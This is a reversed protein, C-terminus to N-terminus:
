LGKCVCRRFFIYNGEKTPLGWANSNVHYPIYAFKDKQVNFRDSYLPIESLSPVIILSAKIIGYKRITDIITHFLGSGKDQLWFHFLVLKPKRSITLYQLLGFKIGAKPSMVVLDFKKRILHAGIISIIEDNLLKCYTKLFPFDLQNIKYWLTNEKSFISTASEAWKQHYEVRVDGLPIDTLIKM